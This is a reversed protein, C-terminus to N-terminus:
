QLGLIFHNIQKDLQESLLLVLAKQLHAQADRLAACLVAEVTLGGVTSPPADVLVLDVLEVALQAVLGVADEAPYSGWM